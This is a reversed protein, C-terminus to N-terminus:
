QITVADGFKARLLGIVKGIDVSYEPGLAVVKAGFTLFVPSDGPHSELLGRVESIEDPTVARRAFDIHLSEIGNKPVDVVSIDSAMLSTRGDDRRDLRGRIIVIQDDVVLHGQTAFMRPFVTVEISGALDELTFTAMQEGKRTFKRDVGVIVGGLVLNDETRDPVEVIPCTVRRGMVTELGRLPHDSVYFGLMEKELRLQESKDFVLNPIEARESYGDTQSAEDGFLSM